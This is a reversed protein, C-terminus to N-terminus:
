HLPSSCKTYTKRAGGMSMSSKIAPSKGASELHSHMTPNVEKFGEDASDSTSSAFDKEFKNKDSSRPM